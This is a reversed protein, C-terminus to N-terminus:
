TFVAMKAYLLSARMYIEVVGQAGCPYRGLLVGTHCLYSRRGVCTVAINNGIWKMSIDNGVWARAIDNGIKSGSTIGSTKLDPIWAKEASNQWFVYIGAKLLQFLM